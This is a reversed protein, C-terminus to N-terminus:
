IKQRLARISGNASYFILKTALSSKRASITMM